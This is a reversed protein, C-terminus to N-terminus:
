QTVLVTWNPFQGHVDHLLLDMLGDQNLDVPTGLEPQVPVPVDGLYTEEYAKAPAAFYSPAHPPPGLNPPVIWDTTPLEQGGLQQVDPVVLDDLGDGTVDLLMVSALKSNPAKVTTNIRSFSPAEGRYSFRTPPKCVQDAACEEVSTLLTRGTAPGQAYH